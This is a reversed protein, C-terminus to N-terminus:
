FASALASALSGLLSSPDFSDGGGWLRAVTRAGRPSLRHRVRDVWFPGQELGEPLDQIELVTGVRLAPVLFASLRGSRRGSRYVRELAAGATRAAAATRLAPEFRWMSTASPGDPRSGAFFDTTPRLAGPVGPSGAGAEGAVVFTEVSSATVGQDLGTIERGYRLAVEPVSANVVSADLRNDPGVRALAGMWAALRAVHELATRSPDSVYFPLIAGDDVRGVRVGVDGCLTQILTGIGVQEYTAAPRYRALDGGADLATVVIGDIQHSVGDISGDFADQSGEGNDLSLKASECPGARLATEAPLRVSLANILPAPAAVLDLELVQETFRQGGLTLSYSPRLLSTM